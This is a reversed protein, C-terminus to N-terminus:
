LQTQPQAIVKKILNETEKEFSPSYMLPAISIQDFVGSYRLLLTNFCKPNKNIPPLNSKSFCVTENFANKGQKINDPCSCSTNQNAAASEDCGAEEDEEQSGCVKCSGEASELSGQLIGTLWTYIFSFLHKSASLCLCRSYHAM